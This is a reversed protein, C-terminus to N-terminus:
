PRDPHRSATPGGLLPPDTPVEDFLRVKAGALAGLMQGRFFPLTCLPGFCADRLAGLLEGDAQFFPTVIRNLWQYTFTHWWRREAYDALTGGKGLVDALVWADYLGLNAGQGLQPSMAHAADGIYVVRDGIPSTLVVDYYEAWTVQEIDVLQDLIPASRPSVRLAEDKWARLGKARWADVADTHMSWFLSVLRDETTPSRGTPLTGLMVQTGEYEQKLVGGFDDNPDPVIAWLAGWPYRRARKEVRGAGRLLSRAGDGVICLEFPGHKTGNADLAHRGDWSTIEVGCQVDVGTSELADFLAQFLAGRHLGLGFLGPRWDSYRLDLVKRGGTTRGDLHDVRAGMALVPDLLGLDALVTMGTPQLLIGAGVPGPDEVREFITVAHGQRALLLAAAPGSTGCGVVCVNM